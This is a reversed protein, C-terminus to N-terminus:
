PYETVREATYGDEELLAIIGKDGLFHALGVVFLVKKGGAALEKAAETMHANRDFYFKNMFDGAAAKEEDSANTLDLDDAPDLGEIDGARWSDYSTVLEGNVKKINDESYSALLIDYVSDSLEFFLKMQFDASEVNYVEKGADHVANLINLDFGKDYSLGTDRLPLKQIASYIYWARMSEYATPDEDYHELYSCLAQWTEDSIHDHISEGSPYTMKDNYKLSAALTQNLDTLDYEVALVECDDVAAQVYDPLPYCEDKLAHMSGMMYITKGEPSTVKWMAPTYPAAEDSEASESSDAEATSESEDPASEAPPLTVKVPAEEASEAATVSASEPSSSSNGSGSGCGAATCTMIVAATLAATIRKLSTM